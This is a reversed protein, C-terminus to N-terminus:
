ESRTSRSQILLPKNFADHVGVQWNFKASTEVYHSRWTKRVQEACTWTGNKAQHNGRHQHSHRGYNNAPQQLVLDQKNAAVVIPRQYADAGGYRLIQDRIQRIYQFTTAPRSADFVLVYASAKRLRCFTHPTTENDQCQINWEQISDEPFKPIAPFDSIHVEIIRNNTVLSTSYRRASTTATVGDNFYNEVFQQM